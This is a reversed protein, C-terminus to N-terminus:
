TAMSLYWKEVYLTVFTGRCKVGHTTRLKFPMINLLYRSAKMWSPSENMLLSLVKFATVGFCKEQGLINMAHLLQLTGNHVNM